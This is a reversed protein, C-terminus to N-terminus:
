AAYRAQVRDVVVELPRDYAVADGRGPWGARLDRLESSLLLGSREEGAEAKDFARLIEKLRDGDEGEARTGVAAALDRGEILELAAAWFERAM